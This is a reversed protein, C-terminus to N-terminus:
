AHPPRDPKKVSDPVRIGLERRLRALEGETAVREAAEHQSCATRQMESASLKDENAGPPRTDPAPPIPVLGFVATGTMPKM